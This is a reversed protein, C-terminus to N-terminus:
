VSHMTERFPTLGSSRHDAIGIMGIINPNHNSFLPAIAYDATMWLVARQVTADGSDGEM